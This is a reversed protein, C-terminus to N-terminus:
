DEGIFINFTARLNEVTTIRLNAQLENVWRECYCESKRAARLVNPDGEVLPVAFELTERYLKAAALRLRFSELLQDCTQKLQTDTM